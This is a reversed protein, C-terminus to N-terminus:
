VQFLYIISSLFYSISEWNAILFFLVILSGLGIASGILIRIGIPHKTKPFAKIETGEAKAKALNLIANSLNDLKSNQSRAAQEFKLISDKVATLNKLEAVLTNLQVSNNQLFDFQKSTTKKLEELQDTAHDKLKSLAEQLTEDITGVAKAIAGKRAEIQTAETKFFTLMEEIARTRQENTDLKENLAKVNALYSNVNNLYSALVGIEESSNKLANYLQLNKINIDKDAFQKVANLLQTQLRYSENVQSLAKGLDSTNTSFTNNFAVLNQSMKELTQATDNSLNPLLEAQIWSLFIHKNKEVKAKAEKAVLSGRTTLSIGVISAIMALAVGGLLAEVGKAGSSGNGANLLDGLGGSIWLYGIGILIGIMTGVLGLYLPIPIQTNIEEEQSDCNRDVIDKMLHFDSVGSKNVNLYSNISDQIENFIPNSHQSDIGNDDERVYSLLIEIVRDQHYYEHEKGNEDFATYEYRTIDLGLTQMMGSHEDWEGNKIAEILSKNKLIYYERQPAFIDQYLKLKKQTDLYIKFQLYVIGAIIVFILLYHM